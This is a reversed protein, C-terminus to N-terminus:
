AMSAAGFHFCAFKTNMCFVSVSSKYENGNSNRCNYIWYRCGPRGSLRVYTAGHHAPRSRSSRHGKELGTGQSALVLNRAPGRCRLRQQTKQARLPCHCGFILLGVRACCVCAASDSSLAVGSVGVM